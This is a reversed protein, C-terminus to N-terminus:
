FSPTPNRNWISFFDSSNSIPSSAWFLKACICSSLCIFLLILLWITCSSGTTACSGLSSLLALFGWDGNWSHPSLLLKGHIKMRIIEEWSLVGNSLLDPFWFAMNWLLNWTLNPVSVLTGAKMVPQNAVAGKGKTAKKPAMRFDVSRKVRM